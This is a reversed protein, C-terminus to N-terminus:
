TRKTAETFRHSVDEWNIIAWMSKIYDPRMNKYQLYYAHEWVDMGLLPVLGRTALLPDQNATTAFQVCKSVSNYGLWGWGSGQVAGTHTSFFTKFDEFSGFEDEIAKLLAGHPKGTAKDPPCLNRWFISHNIHGGGNFNIQSTLMAQTALDNAQQAASFKELAANLNNVYAQHHKQHHLRMIEESVIPELAKFDYPLDPLTHKTRRLLSSSSSSSSSSISCTRKACNRLLLTM